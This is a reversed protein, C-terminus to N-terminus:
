NSFPVDEPIIGSMVAGEIVKKMDGFYNFRFTAALLGGRSKGYSVAYTSLGATFM